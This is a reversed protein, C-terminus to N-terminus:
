VPLRLNLAHLPIFATPAHKKVPEIFDVGFVRIGFGTTIVCGVHEFHDLRAKIVSQAVVTSAVEEDSMLAAEISFSPLLYAHELALMVRTDEGSGKLQADMIQLAGYIQSDTPLENKLEFDYAIEKAFEISDQIMEINSM